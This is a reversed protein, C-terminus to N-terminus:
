LRHFIRWNAWIQGSDYNIRDCKYIHIHIRFCSSSRWRHEINDWLKTNNLKGTESFNNIIEDRLFPRFVHQITLSDVVLQKIRHSTLQHATRGLFGSISFGLIVSPTQISISLDCYEMWWPNNLQTSIQHTDYARRQSKIHQSGSLNRLTSNTILACFSRGVDPSKLNCHVAIWENM